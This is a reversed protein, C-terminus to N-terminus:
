NLWNRKAQNYSKGFCPLRRPVHRCLSLYLMALSVSQPKTLIVTIRCFIKTICERSLFNCYNWKSKGTNKFPEIVRAGLTILKCYTLMPVSFTVTEFLTKNHLSACNLLLSNHAEKFKARRKWRMKWVMWCAEYFTYWSYLKILWTCCTNLSNYCVNM